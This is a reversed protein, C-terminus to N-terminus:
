QGAESNGLHPIEPVFTRSQRAAKNAQYRYSNAVREFVEVGWEGLMMNLACVIIRANSQTYGGRPDIRDISPAYPNMFTGGDHPAFFEIGTLACRFEQRECASLAWDLTLDFPLGKSAARRRMVGLRDRLTVETRQRRADVATVPMDRVHPILKGALAADYAARFDPSDFDPLRARAGNGRRFYVARKGHRSTEVSIFKLRPKLM